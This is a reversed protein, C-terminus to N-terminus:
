TPQRRGGGTPAKRKKFLSGGAPTPIPPENLEVKPLIEGDSTKIKPVESESAKTREIRSNDVELENLVVDTPPKKEDQVVENSGSENESVAKEGPRKWEIKGWKPVSTPKPGLDTAYSTSAPVLFTSPASSSKAEYEVPPPKTKPKLTIVGPDYIEGLGTGLTKKRLKFHRTDEEDVSTEAPRKTSSEDQPQQEDEEQQSSSEVVEWAGAIGQTRHREKEVAIREADPDTYGLSAATSYDAFPNSPKQPPKKSSTSSSAVPTAAKARGAGVDQAFAAQAAMEVRVMERKEEELDKKKKEGDKYLGRIFRDRNGKHRLGNEHQQRSPADDAIYIECYKCYYKKKSVWYESM